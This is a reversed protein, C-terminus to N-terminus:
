KKKKLVIQEAQKAAIQNFFAKIADYNEVKFYLQTVEIKINIRIGDTTKIITYDFQGGKNDLKASASQPMEEIEYNKPLTLDMTFEDRFPYPFEVPYNRENLRFPNQDFETKLTPKLYMFDDAVTAANDITCYVAEKLNAKHADQGKVKISDITIGIFDTALKKRLYENKDDNETTLLENVASYGTHYRVMSGKLSGTESLTFTASLTQISLPPVIDVWKSNYGQLIWGQGNLSVSRLIGMPRHITGVDLLLPKGTAETYCILHNFQKVMPYSPVPRGNERTSILMPAAEINAQRLCAILMLNLEASSAKRKKFAADLEGDAFVNFYNDIWSVNKALYTYIKEIKMNVSMTDNIEKKVVRWMDKSNSKQTYQLGLLPHKVLTEAFKDWSNVVDELKGNPLLFRSLQFRIRSKYNDTTTVYSEEKMAPLSDITFRTTNSNVLTSKFFTIHTSDKLKDLKPYKGGQCIFQYEYTEPVNLFLDSHRVPLNDQFYWDTLTFPNDSVDTKYRYEIISGEQLNPFAFKLTFNDARNQELFFDKSALRQVTGNPQIVQADIRRIGDVNQNATFSIKVTGVATVATKKLIKIRKYRNFFSYFPTFLTSGADIFGIDFLVVADAATDLSYRTMALDEAPVRGWRFVSATDNAYFVSDRYNGATDLVLKAAGKQAVSQGLFCFLLFLTSSFARM